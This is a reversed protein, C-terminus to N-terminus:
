SRHHLYSFRMKGNPISKNGVSPREVAAENTAKEFRLKGKRSGSAGTEQRLKASKKKSVLKDVAKDARAATKQVKSDSLNKETFRLRTPKKVM